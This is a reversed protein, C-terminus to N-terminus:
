WRDEKFGPFVDEIKEDINRKLAELTEYLSDLGNDKLFERACHKLMTEHQRELENMFHGFDVEVGNITLRLDVPSDAGPVIKFKELFDNTNRTEETMMHMVAIALFDNETLRKVNVKM